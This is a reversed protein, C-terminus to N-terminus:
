VFVDTLGEIAGSGRSIRSILKGSKHNSHFKHSLRIIHTFYKKKLDYILRPEVISILKMSLWQFSSRLVVIGIYILAILSIIKLFESQVLTESVFKEASDILWKYLYKDSVLLLEVLIVTLIMFFYIKKHKSVIKWYEKFNRRFHIKKDLDRM